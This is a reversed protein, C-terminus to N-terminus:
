VNRSCFMANGKPLFGGWLVVRNNNYFCAVTRGFRNKAVIEFGQYLWNGLGNVGLFLSRTIFYKGFEIKFGNM